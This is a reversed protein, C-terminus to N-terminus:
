GIKLINWVLHTAKHIGTYVGGLMTDDSSNSYNGDANTLNVRGHTTRIDIDTTEDIDFRFLFPYDNGQPSSHLLTLIDQSNTRDYLKTTVSGGNGDRYLECYYSGKPLTVYCLYNNTGVAPSNIQTTSAASATGVTTITSGSCTLSAGPISNEVIGNLDHAAWGNDGGPYGAGVGANKEATVIFTQPQKLLPTGLRQLSM